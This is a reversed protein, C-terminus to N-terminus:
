AQTGRPDACDPTVFTAPKGSPMPGFVRQELEAESLAEADTAGIGSRRV